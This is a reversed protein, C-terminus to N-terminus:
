PGRVQRRSARPRRKSVSKDRGRQKATADPALGAREQANARM